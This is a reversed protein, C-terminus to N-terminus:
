ETDGENFKFSPKAAPTAPASEETVVQLWPHEAALTLLESDDTSFPAVFSEHQGFGFTIPGDETPAEDSLIIKAM